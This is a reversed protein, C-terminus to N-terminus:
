GRLKRTIDSIKSTQSSVLDEEIIARTGYYICIYIYVEENEIHGLYSNM